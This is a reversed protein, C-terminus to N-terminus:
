HMTKRRQWEINYQTALNCLMKEVIDPPLNSFFMLNFWVASVTRMGNEVTLPPDQSELIKLIDKCTKEMVELEKSKM